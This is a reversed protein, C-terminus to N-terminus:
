GLWMLIQDLSTDGNGHFVCPFSGTLKNIIRGNEYAIDGVSSHLSQAIRCQYDLAIPAPNRLFVNTFVAQDNTRDPVKDAEIRSFMEQLAETSGMWVGSNLFRYPTSSSPYQTAMRPNPHCNREASFIIPAGFEQFCATIQDLGSALVVDYADCFLVHSYGAAAKELFQKVLKLKVGHGNYPQGFGLVVPFTDNKKASQIFAKFYRKSESAVTLLCPNKM